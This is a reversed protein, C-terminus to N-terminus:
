VLNYYFTPYPIHASGLHTPGLYVSGLYVMLPLTCTLVRYALGHHVLASDANPVCRQQETTYIMKTQPRSVAPLWSLFFLKDQPRGDASEFEKDFIAYRCDAEPLGKLFDDFTESARGARDVTINTGDVKFIIYRHKKRLKLQNFMEECASDVTPQKAEAMTHILQSPIEVPAHPPPSPSLSFPFAAHAPTHMYKDLSLFFSLLPAVSKM